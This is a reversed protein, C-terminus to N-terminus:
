DKETYLSTPFVIDRKIANTVEEMKTELVPDGVKHAADKVYQLIECLQQICRVILGEQVDTLEMIESFPKNQAWNYVVDMLGYNLGSNNGSDGEMCPKQLENVQYYSETQVVRNYVEEIALRGEELCDVKKWEARSQFVLSSLLAAIVPPPYNTLVNNFVLETIMLENSGMSSAVTGKFAVTNNDDIYELKRLVKLKRQLDDYSSLSEISVDRKLEEIREKKQRKLDMYDFVEEFLESYNPITSFDINDLKKNLEKLHYIVHSIADPKDWVEMLNVFQKPLESFSALKDIAYLCQQGVPDDSFRPTLRKQWDNIILEPEIQVHLPTIYVVNEPQLELVTHGGKCDWLFVEQPRKLSLMEYYLDSKGNTKRADQNCLVLVQYKVQTSTPYHVSLVMGYKNVHEAKRIVVIQGTKMSKTVRSTLMIANKFKKDYQLFEYATKYFEELKDKGPKRIEYRELNDLEMQVEELEKLKKPKNALYKYEKFSRTMMDELTIECNRLRLTKLIMAYTTHFQSQLKTTKDFKMIKKLSTDPPVKEKCLIIVMGTKDKGRRGARGAMQIYESPLLERIDSGTFKEISDFVVTRTPMNVGMAFTETAFLLKLKGEQFLLEVIEKLIPLIGSHHIGIGKMLLREMTRVQPLQRDEEKLRQICKKFFTRIRHKESETTLDQKELAEANNDCRKRSLTFIVVPLQNEDLLYEILCAIQQQQEKANMRTPFRQGWGGRGGGRPAGRGVDRPSGRGEPKKKKTHADKKSIEAKRYGEMILSKEGRCILFCDKRNGRHTGTYLYHELPVPRYLTSLVYVPSKRISGVWNAFELSNPVTASLMVIRVPKPLLIMVEEWVHGREKDNIYHVEDFIVYELEKIISSSAKTQYLMSRLIETTMILCGADPNLQFDGTILGVKGIKRDEEFSKKFDRYKQNSLAKIPSTYIARAKQRLALAIAYEAVVTKGASTHASVFVNCHDELKLIAQKQFTDLEFPWTFAMEPIRSKFDEVPKTIDLEEAWEQKGYVTKEVHESIKLVPISSEKPLVSEEDFENVPLESVPSKYDHSEDEDKSGLDWLVNADQEQQLLNMLNVIQAESSKEEQVVNKAKENIDAKNSLNSVPTFGDREFEIGGYFGPVITLLDKDFNIDLQYEGPEKVDSVHNLDSHLINGSLQSNKVKLLHVNEVECYDLIEGTNQDRIVQLTTPAESLESFYLSSPTPQRPWFRQAREYSHIPLQDPKLYEELQKSVHPLVPPPTFPFEVEMM